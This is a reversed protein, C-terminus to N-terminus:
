AIKALAENCAVLALPNTSPDAELEQRYTLLRELKDFVIDGQGSM